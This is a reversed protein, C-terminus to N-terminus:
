KATRRIIRWFEEQNVFGDKDLDAETIMEKLEEETRQVDGLELAVTKLNELSIKGTRDLDFLRFSKLVDDKM